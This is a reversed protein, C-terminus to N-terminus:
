NIPVRQHPRWGGTALTELFSVRGVITATSSSNPARKIREISSVTHILDSFLMYTLKRERNYSNREECYILYIKFPLDKRVFNQFNNANPYERALNDLLSPVFRSFSLLRM